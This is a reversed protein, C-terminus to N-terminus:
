AFLSEVFADVFAFMEEKTLNGDGSEDIFKFTAEVQEELTDGGLGQPLLRCDPDALM